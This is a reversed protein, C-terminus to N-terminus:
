KARHLVHYLAQQRDRATRYIAVRAPDPDYRENLQPALDPHAGDNWLASLAAGRSSAEPVAAWWVQRGCADAIIQRWLPSAELAGGSAVIRADPAAAGSAMIADAIQALRLAIGEMCARAVDLGSTGLSVGHLTGRIDEAYGPSREGALTPLVTLGHADPQMESLAQELAPGEPLRFQDRVWAFVSGGETTAGGILVHAHDVFYRWLATPLVQMHAQAPAVVRLAATTGVTVAIREPGTCGSGINAAAGDGLPPSLRAARLWPWRVAWEPTLGELAEGPGLIRPLRGADLGLMRLWVADWDHAATDILGTWASLSLGSVMRGFLRLTLADALSCLWRANRMVEPRTAQLWAIRAPWYNARVRCGTRQLVAPENIDERARLRAAHPAARTDAYTFVPTLARGQADLCLLSTAYSSVAIHTVGGHRSAAPAIGDLARALRDWAADLDDESRGHDDVTFQFAIRAEGAPPTRLARDFLTARTSSSGLDLALIM